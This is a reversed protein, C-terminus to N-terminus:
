LAVKRSVIMQYKARVLVKQAVTLAQYSAPLRDEYLMTQWRLANCAREGTAKKDIGALDDVAFPVIYFEELAEASATTWLKFGQTTQNAWLRNIIAGAEISHKGDVPTISTLDLPVGAPVLHDFGSGISEALFEISFSPLTVASIKAMYPGYPDITTNSRKSQGKPREGIWDSAPV